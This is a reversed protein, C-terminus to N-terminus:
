FPFNDMARIYSAVAQWQQGPKGMFSNGDAFAKIYKTVKFMM